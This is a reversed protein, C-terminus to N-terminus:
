HSDLIEKVKRDYDAKSILGEDYLQKDQNIRGTANPKIQTPATASAPAPPPALVGGQSKFLAQIEDASLARSFMMVDDMLGNFSAGIEGLSGDPNSRNAGITLDYPTHPIEGVWHGQKGVLRGDVYIKADKGDFTGVVHHWKGDAVQIGSFAATKGPEIDVQGGYSMGKNDAENGCMSLVYGKGTGKDLIRRWVRDTYSTKIWAALTLRAPNLEDKNTVTIYSDNLGFQFAGGRRGQATWRLNVVHGDNGSGSEDRVVANKPPENFSFYLVLGRRWDASTVPRRQSEVNAVTQVSRRVGKRITNNFKDCVYINGQTDLALADPGNFRAVAGAGDSIGGNGALGGITTVVGASAIRRITNNGFDAVYLNGSGDVAIGRPGNFRASSTAGDASGAVGPKGALTSVVGGPNIVRITCNGSETVYLFGRSDVALGFPANFRASAAPGDMSGNVGAKGALTSVVGEPTIKRITNNARDELFIDGDPGVALGKPHNFRAATPPGDASGIDGANGVFTTVWGSPTIRRITNNSFDAVYVNGARDVAMGGQTYGFRANAGMGDNSGATGALGAFTGVEGSPKILRITYNYSDGVYLNDEHDVAIGSPLNFLADSGFGDRAGKSGAKGAITTFSWTEDQSLGAASLAPPTQVTRALPPAANAARAAAQPPAAVPPAQLESAPETQAAVKAAVPSSFNNGRQSGKRLWFAAAVVLAVIGVAALKRGYGAPRFRSKGAELMGPPMPPGGDGATTSRSEEAPEGVVSGSSSPAKPFFAAALSETSPKVVLEVGIWEAVVRASQPRQGPEKALCAMILAAADPPIDNRMGLAALRDEMPEPAENLVQHSIDGSCFPLQSTLLEYLTAGLAYIDDAAQPRQGRVQQPSMYPLTGSTSHRMSIRSMSDSAVAAIGFDALKLRGRSDVMMNAPKLDRHIVKENHAYELAACLQAALPRLYGWSLARSPQQLRFAALTPGDIYEMVIFAMGDADEHLDHIRVINPHSLKHSRATERRLDDLAGPDGRIEPPLFKLAVPERLREDRALWVEGM